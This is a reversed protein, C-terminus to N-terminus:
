GRIVIAVKLIIHFMIVCNLFINMNFCEAGQVISFMNMYDNQVWCYADIQNM